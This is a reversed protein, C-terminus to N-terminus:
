RNDNNKVEEMVADVFWSEDAKIFPTCDVPAVASASVLEKYLLENIQEPTFMCSLFFDIEVNDTANEKRSIRYCDAIKYKYEIAKQNACEECYGDYIYLDDAIFLGGCSKCWDAEEFGASGCCPCYSNKEYIPRGWAEALFEYEIKEEGEEFIHGCETCKYNM